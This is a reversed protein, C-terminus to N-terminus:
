LRICCYGSKNAQDDLLRQPHTVQSTSQRVWKWPYLSLPAAKVKREVLQGTQHFSGFLRGHRGPYSLESPEPSRCLYWMSLKPTQSQSPHSPRASQPTLRTMQRFLISPYNFNSLATVSLSASYRHTPPTSIEQLKLSRAQITQRTSDPLLSHAVPM